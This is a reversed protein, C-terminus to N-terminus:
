VMYVTLVVYIKSYLFKLTDSSTLSFNAIDFILQITYSLIRFLLTDINALLNRVLDILWGTPQILM